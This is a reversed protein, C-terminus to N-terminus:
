PTESKNYINKRHGIRLITITKLKHDLDLIIRYDGARLRYANEGKLRKIDKSTINCSFERILKVIRKSIFHDLKEVQAFAKKDWIIKYAM